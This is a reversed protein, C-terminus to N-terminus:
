STISLSPMCVFNGSSCGACLDHSRQVEETLICYGGVVCENDLVWCWSGVVWWGGGVVWWGGGVVWGGGWGRRDLM